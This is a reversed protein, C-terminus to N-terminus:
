SKSNLFIALLIIPLFIVVESRKEMWRILEVVLYFVNHGMRFRGNPGMGQSDLNSLTKPNVVGGTLKGVEKRAVFPSPWNEALISFDPQDKQPSNSKKTM